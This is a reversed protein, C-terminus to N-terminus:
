CVSESTQPQNLRSDCALAALRSSLPSYRQTFVIFFLLLLLRFYNLAKTCHRSLLAVCHIFIFNMSRSRSPVPAIPLLDPWTHRLFYMARSSSLLVTIIYHELVPTSAVEYLLGASFLTQVFGLLLLTKVSYRFVSLSPGTFTIVSSFRLSLLSPGTGLSRVSNAWHFYHSVPTGTGQCLLGLLLLSQISRTGTDQRLHDLGWLRTSGGTGLQGGGGRGAGDGREPVPDQQPQPGACLFSGEASVGKSVCSCLSNRTGFKQCANWVTATKFSVGVSSAERTKHIYSHFVFYVWLLQETPKRCLKNLFFFFFFSTRFHHFSSWPADGNQGTKTADHVHWYLM